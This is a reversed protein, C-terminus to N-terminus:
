NEGFGHLIQQSCEDCEINERERERELVIRLNLLTLVPPSPLAGDVGLRVGASGLAEGDMEAEVSEERRDLPPSSLSPPPALNFTVPPDLPVEGRLLKVPLCLLCPDCSLM